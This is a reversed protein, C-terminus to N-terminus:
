KGLPEFDELPRGEFLTVALPAEAAREVALAIRFQEGYNLVRFQWAAPDEDLQPGFAIQPTRDAFGFSFDDLPIHLGLGRAKLWAEKLTWLAFFRERQEHEGLELLEQHEQMSFFRASLALMEVKRTVPEVDVGLRAQKSVALVVLGDTHSLNFQLPASGGVAPLGPKGHSNHTFQLAAPDAEGLLGGLVSRVLARAILFSQRDAPYVFRQWRAREDANLLSAYRELLSQDWVGNLPCIWLQLQQTDLARM